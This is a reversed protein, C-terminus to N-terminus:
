IAEIAAAFFGDCDHIDPSLTLYPLNSLTLQDHSLITSVDVLQYRGQHASLFKEIIQENEERL